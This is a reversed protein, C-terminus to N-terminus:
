DYLLTSISLHPILIIVINIGKRIMLQRVAKPKDTLNHSNHTVSM